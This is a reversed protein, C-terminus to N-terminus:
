LLDDTKNCFFSSSFSSYGDHHENIVRLEFAHDIYRVTLQSLDHPALALRNQVTATDSTHMGNCTHRMGRSLSHRSTNLCVVTHSRVLISPSIDCLSHDTFRFLSKLLIPQYRTKEIHNQLKTVPQIGSLDRLKKGIINRTLIRRLHGLTLYCKRCTVALLHRDCHGRSRLCSSDESTRVSPDDTRIGSLAHIDTQSYRRHITFFIIFSFFLGPRLLPSYLWQHILSPVASLYM